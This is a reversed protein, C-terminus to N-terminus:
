DDQNWDELRGEIREGQGTQYRRPENPEPNGGGRREGGRGGVAKDKTGTEDNTKGDTNRQV